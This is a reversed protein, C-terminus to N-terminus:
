DRGLSLLEQRLLKGVSSRPLTDVFTISSPVEHAALREGCFELLERETLEDGATAVVFAEGKGDIGVVGADTVVPHHLLAREIDGPYVVGGPTDYADGVRDVIWIFGEADVRATDGTRLWGNEDIAERTADPHNWYGAMVNPGSVLLEGTQDPDCDTGDPRVTRVDVFLAPTGASGVKLLANRSDLVSVLPAAESLGYGQM